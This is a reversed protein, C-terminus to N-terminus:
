KKKDLINEGIGAKIGKEIDFTDKNIRHLM